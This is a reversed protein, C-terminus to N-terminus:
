ALSSLSTSLSPPRGRRGKREREGERGREREGEREGEKRTERGRGGERARAGQSLVRLGSAAAPPSCAFAAPPM